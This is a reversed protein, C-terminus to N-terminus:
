FSSLHPGAVTSLTFRRLRSHLLRRCHRFFTRIFRTRPLTSIIPRNYRARRPAVFGNRTPCCAINVKGRTATLVINGGGTSSSRSSRSSNNGSSHYLPPSLGVATRGFVRHSCTRHAYSKPCCSDRSAGAYADVASLVSHGSLRTRAAHTTQRTSVGARACSPNRRRCLVGLPLPLACSVRRADAGCRSGATGDSM